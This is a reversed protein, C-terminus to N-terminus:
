VAPRLVRAPQSQPQDISYLQGANLRRILAGPSILAREWDAGDRWDPIGLPEAALRLAYGLEAGILHRLADGGQQPDAIMWSHGAGYLPYLAGGSEEAVGCATEFPVIFDNDGHLVMTTIGSERMARLRAASDASRLMARVARVLAVPHRFNGTVASTLCRAWHSVRAVNLGTLDHGTGRVLALLAAVNRPAPGAIDALLQDFWAGAAANFLVAALVREPASAALEIVMRGGFSHGVFVAQEIGLADIVRLALEAFDAVRGKRTRVPDTDGHGAADIAVVLFGLDAIHRLMDLYARHNLALGHLFVLPVGRGGVTLGVKHGDDLEFVHHSLRIPEEIAHLM